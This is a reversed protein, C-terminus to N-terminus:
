MFRGHEIDNRKKKHQQPQIRFTYSKKSKTQNHKASYLTRQAFKAVYTQRFRNQKLETIGFTTIRGTQKWNLLCNVIETVNRKM